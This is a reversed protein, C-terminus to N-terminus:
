EAAKRKIKVKRKKPPPVDGGAQRVTNLMAAIKREKPWSPHHAKIFRMVKGKDTSKPFPM